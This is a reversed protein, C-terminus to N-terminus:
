SKVQHQSQSSSDNFWRQADQSLLVVTVLHDAPHAVGSEVGSCGVAPLLRTAVAVVESGLLLQLLSLVDQCCSNQPSVGDFWNHCCKGDNIM